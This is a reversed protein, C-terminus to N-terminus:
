IIIDDPVTQTAPIVADVEANVRDQDVSLEYMGVAARALTILCRKSFQKDTEGGVIDQDPIRFHFNGSFDTGDLNDNSGRASLVMDTDTIAQFAELIRAVHISQIALNLKVEAM